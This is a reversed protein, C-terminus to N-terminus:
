KTKPTANVQWSVEIGPKDTHIVFKNNSIKEYVVAQAFDSGVITLQYRFDSNANEFGAPLQVIASGNNDTVINGNCSSASSSSGSNLQAKIAANDAKVSDIILQQEQIAEVLIPTLGIYNVGKYDIIAPKGTNPDIDGPASSQAVLEPFVKELDQAILGVQTGSSFNMSKYEDRKMTYTVPKLLMVKNLAGTMPQINEKFKEDSVNLWTGTYGGNGNCYVGYNTSGGSATGYVGYRSGTGATGTASGFVGYGTGVYSTSSALGYVGMYGGEGYVGYGYGPNNVSKGYVGYHDSNGSFTNTLLSTYQATGEDVEFKYGPLMNGIGVYGSALITLRPTFNTGIQVKGTATTNEFYFDNGTSEIFGKYVGAEDFKIGPTPADMHITPFSSTSSFIDVPSSPSSQGIGLNNQMYVNGAGFYGAWNTGGGSANGYIGYTTSGAGGNSVGYVGVGGTTSNNTGNVAYTETSTEGWFHSTTTSAYNRSVTVRGDDTINMVSALPNASSSAAGGPSTYFTIVSAGTGGADGTSAGARFFLRGSAQNLGFADGGKITLDGGNGLVTAPNVGVFANSPLSLTYNPSAVGIGIGVNSGWDTLAGTGLTSPTIWRATYNTIGSGTAASGATVSLNGAPDAIVVGPGALSSIKATGTVDLNALPNSNNIGVYGNSSKAYLPMYGNSPFTLFWDNSSNIGHYAYLVGGHNYGFM